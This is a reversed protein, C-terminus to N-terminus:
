HIRKNEFRLSNKVNIIMFILSHEYTHKNIREGILTPVSSISNEKPAPQGLTQAVYLSQDRYLNRPGLNHTRKKSKIKLRTPFITRACCLM